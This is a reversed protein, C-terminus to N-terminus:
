EAIRALRRDFVFPGFPVVAAVAGLLALRRGLPVRKVAIWLCVVLAVFLFGHLAGVISVALPMDWVYKLPMAVGFLLLTSCGEVFGLRRLLRLYDRDIPQMPACNPV